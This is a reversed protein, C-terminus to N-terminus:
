TSTTTTAARSTARDHLGGGNYYRWGEADRAQSWIKGQWILYGVGLSQAHEKLWSTLKWGAELQRATPATGIQNGFTVDCARGLPHESKSGPRRPSYCSWATNPFRKRARGYLQLTRATILGNSTPDDVMRNPEGALSGPTSARPQCNAPATVVPGPLQLPRQRRLWVTPDTPRRTTGGPRVEFHLHAGTSQGASGVDGIHQGATVADGVHVHIGAKWLHAYATAVPQGKIRHEIVVLGGYIRSQEVDTVVGDAAALIPTGDAAGLDLGTHFSAAGTVPNTRPGFTDTVLWSGEPLPFVVRSGGSGPAPVPSTSPRCNTITSPNLLAGIGIALAIPGILISGILGGVLLKKFM